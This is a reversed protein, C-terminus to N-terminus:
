RTTMATMKGIPTVMGHAGRSWISGRGDVDLMERNWIMTYLYAKQESPALSGLVIPDALENFWVVENVYSAAPLKIM